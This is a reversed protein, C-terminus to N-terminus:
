NIRNQNRRVWVSYNMYIDIEELLPSSDRSLKANHRCITILKSILENIKDDVNILSPSKRGFHYRSVESFDIWICIPPLDFGLGWNSKCGANSFSSQPTQFNGTTAKLRCSARIRSRCICGSSTMNKNCGGNMKKGISHNESTSWTSIDLGSM